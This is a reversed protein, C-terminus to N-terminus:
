IQQIVQWDHWIPLCSAPLEKIRGLDTWPQDPMHFDSGCSAKLGYKACIGSLMLTVEPKQSGSIVEIGEGGLATFESILETMRRHTFGYKMPHALVAKGGAGHISPILESMPAWMSCDNGPKGPGLYKKFAAAVTKCHGQEALYRAFHPRGLITTGAWEQIEALSHSIGLRRLKASIIEARLMRAQKQKSVTENLLRNGTDINLGLIHVEANRWRGSFEIGPILRLGNLETKDLTDYAALTDHDTISLMDIGHAKARELLEGPSLSGDSATTHSHLDVLM